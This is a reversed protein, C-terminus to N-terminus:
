KEPEPIALRFERAIARLELIDAAALANRAATIAEVPWDWWVLAQLDKIQAESFRMRVVQAPNGAVIAYDPVTGRVVAGAGVIVGNGIRTGPCIMANMGIWVDNGIFTDRTDPQVMGSKDADFIGFPYTSIGAMDHNASSTVFLAGHAIQCFRGLVLREQSFPFLYPALAQAWDVPMDFRSAYTFEGVSFRPNDVVNKLFVTGEHRSGDPLIVPHTDTPMAFPVPM